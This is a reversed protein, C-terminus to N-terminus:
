KNETLVAGAEGVYTVVLEVPENGTNEGYHWADVVEVLAEGARVTKSAGDEMHVTLVGKLVYAVNILPHKHMPLKEGVPITIRVVSVEPNKLDAPALEVGNWVTRSRVLVEKQAM